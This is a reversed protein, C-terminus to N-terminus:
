RLPNLGSKKEVVGVQGQLRGIQGYLAELAVKVKVKFEVSFVKRQMAHDGRTRM